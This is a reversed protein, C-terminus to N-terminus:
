NHALLCAREGEIGSGCAHRIKKLVLLVYFKMQSAQVVVTIGCMHMRARRAQRALIGAKM